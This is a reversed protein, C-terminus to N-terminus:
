KKKKKKKYLFYFECQNLYDASKITIEFGIKKWFFGGFFCLYIFSHYFFNLCVSSVSQDSM